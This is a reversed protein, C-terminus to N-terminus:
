QEKLHSSKINHADTVEIASDPMVFGRQHREEERKVKPNLGGLMCRQNYKFFYESEVDLLACVLYDVRHNVKGDLYHTKLNNHFSLPSFFFLMWYHVCTLIQLM